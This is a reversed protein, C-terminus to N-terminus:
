TEMPIYPEAAAANFTELVEQSIFTLHITGKKYCRVEFFRTTIPKHFDGHYGLLDIASGKFSFKQITLWCLVKELDNIFERGWATIGFTESVVNPIIIKNKAKYSSNNKWGEGYVNGSYHKTVTTFVEQFSQKMFGEFNLLLHEFVQEVNERTFAIRKNTDLWATLRKQFSSPALEGLKTLNFIHQWFGQKISEQRTIFDIPNIIKDRSYPLPIDKLYFYLKQEALSLEKSSNVAAQYQAILADIIDFSALPNAEFGNLEDSDLQFLTEDLDLDDKVGPKYLYICVVEVDTPREANQFPQGFDVIEGQYLDILKLVAQRTQSYPNDVMSKPYLCVINTDDAIEWAKLLHDDAHDFPPNMIIAAYSKIPQFTLFDIDVVPFNAALIERLELVKEICEINKIAYTERLVKAIDGKGASPELVSEHKSDFKLYHLEHPHGYKEMRYTKLFPSVMKHTVNEPTPYFNDDFM